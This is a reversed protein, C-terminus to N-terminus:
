LRALQYYSKNPKKIEPKEIKKLWADIELAANKGSATAEVVTKPGTLFDGAYFLGEVQEDRPLTGRMGIAIVVATFGTRTGESGAINRVNAPSFRTGEPLEVKITELGSIKGDEALIKSVRIRGNVEIDFDLLEKREKSTLPMEAYKELMFLEVHAAGCKRATIACDMATAGGGIVAVRGSFHYASPNSLLDVMKIALNENEIGLEIPKWLGTTVCVADYSKLLLKPDELKTGTKANINGLSLLFNIDSELVKKDLRHDPILNAMGGLQDRSEFIDVTYGMQGLAAAAGLGAPGGGVIAVKKGNPKPKSFEPIGGHNKAMEIITAQVLPINIPGDFKKRTCAAMCLTTRASWVASAELLTPMCSRPQRAGSIPNTAWAPPWSSILQPAISLAPKRARNRRASSVVFLETQLQAPTMILSLVKENEM